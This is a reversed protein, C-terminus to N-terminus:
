ATMGKANAADNRVAAGTDQLGVENLRGGNCKMVSRENGVCMNVENPNNAVCRCRMYGCVGNVELAVSVVSCETENRGGESLLNATWGSGKNHEGASDDPSRATM